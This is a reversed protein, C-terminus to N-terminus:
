FYPSVNGRVELSKVTWWIKKLGNKLIVKTGNDLKKIKKKLREDYSLTYRM